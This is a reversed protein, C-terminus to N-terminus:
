TRLTHPLEIQVDAILRGAARGLFKGRQDGGIGVFPALDDLAGPDPQFLGEGVCPSPVITGRAASADSEEGGSEVWITVIAFPGSRGRAGCPRSGAFCEFFSGAFGVRALAARGSVGVSSGDSA